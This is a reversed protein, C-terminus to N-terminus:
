AGSGEGLNEGGLVEALRPLLRSLELTMLAFQGDFLAANDSGDLDQLQEQVVDMFRLRKISPENTLVFSMAENWTLALKVAQKGASLHAQIEDAALDQRRCRVIGGDEAPDIMEAEEGVIFDEPVAESGNLWGTMIASPASNVQFPLVPLSEVADRLCTMFEEAKKPSGADIVLWGDPSIYGRTVSSRTFARPLLTQIAEDKLNAREKRGVKRAEREAIETAKDEVWEKIVAGPLVREERKLAILLYGGAAHVLADGLAPVFGATMPEQSGCPRFRHNELAEALREADQDFPKSFRYLQLNKFWMASDSEAFGPM